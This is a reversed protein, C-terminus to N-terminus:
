KAKEPAQKAKEAKSPQRPKAPTHLAKGLAANMRREIVEPKDESQIDMGFGTEMERLGLGSSRADFGSSTDCMALIASAQDFM